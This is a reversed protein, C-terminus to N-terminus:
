LRRSVMAIARALLRPSFVVLHHSFLQVLNGVPWLGPQGSITSPMCVGICTRCQDAYLVPVIKSRQRQARVRTGTLRADFRCGFQTLTCLVALAIKGWLALPAANALATELSPHEIFSLREPPEARRFIQNSPDTRRTSPSHQSIRDYISLFHYIM